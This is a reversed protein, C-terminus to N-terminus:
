SLTDERYLTLNELLTLLYVIKIGQAFPIQEGKLFRKRLDYRYARISKFLSQMSEISSQNNQNLVQQTFQLIPAEYQSLNMSQIALNLAALTHYCRYWNAVKEQIKATSTSQNWHFNDLAKIQQRFLNIERYFLQPSETAAQESFKLLASQMLGQYWELQARYHQYIKQDSFPWVWILIILMLYAAVGIEGLGIISNRWDTIPALSGTTTSFFMYAGLWGAFSYSEPGHKAYALIYGIVGIAILYALGSTLNLSILGLGFVVGFVAGAALLFLTHKTVSLDFQMTIVVVLSFIVVGPLNFYLAFYPFLIAMLSTKLASEWYYRDFRFRQHLSERRPIEVSPLTAQELFNKILLFLAEQRVLFYAWEAAIPISFLSGNQDRFRGAQKILADLKKQWLQVQNQFALRKHDSDQIFDIMSAFTDNISNQLHQLPKVFHSFIEFAEPTRRWYLDAIIEQSMFVVQELLRSSIKDPTNFLKEQQAFRRLTTQMDSLNQLETLKTHFDASAENKIYLQICRKQLQSLQELLIINNKQLATQTTPTKFLLTIFLGCLTGIVVELGRDYIVSTIQQPAFGITQFLVLLFTLPGYMWVFPTKSKAMFYFAGTLLIISFLLLLLANDGFFCLLFLGVLLCILTSGIREIVQLVTSGRSSQMMVFATWAAWTPDPINMEWVIILAMLCSLITKLALISRDSKWSFQKFDALIDSFLVQVPTFITMTEKRANVFYISHALSSEFDIKLANAPSM